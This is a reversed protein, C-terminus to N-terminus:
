STRDQSLSVPQAVLARRAPEPLEIQSRTTERGPWLTEHAYIFLYEGEYVLSPDAQEFHFGNDLCM